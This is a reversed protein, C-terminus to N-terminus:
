DRELDEFLLFEKLNFYGQKIRELITLKRVESDEYWKGGLKVKFMGCLADRYRVLDEVIFQHKGVILTSGIKPIFIMDCVGM